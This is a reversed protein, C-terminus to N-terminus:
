WQDVWEDREGVIRVKRQQQPEPKLFYAMIKVNDGEVLFRVGQFEGHQVNNKRMEEILEDVIRNIPHESPPNASISFVGDENRRIINPPLDALFRNVPQKGLALGGVRDIGNNVRKQLRDIFGMGGGSKAQPYCESVSVVIPVAVHGEPVPGFLSKRKEPITTNGLNPEGSLVVPPKTAEKGYSVRQQNEPPPPPASLPKSNGPVGDIYSGEVEQYESHNLDITPRLEGLVRSALDSGLTNRLTQDVLEEVDGAGLNAYEPSQIRKDRLNSRPYIDLSTDDKEEYKQKPFLPGNGFPNRVSFKPIFRILGVPKFNPVSFYVKQRNHTNFQNMLAEFIENASSLSRKQIQFIRKFADLARPCGLLMSCNPCPFKNSVIRPELYAPNSPTYLNTGDSAPSLTVLCDANALVHGLIEPLQDKYFKINPTKDTNFDPSYVWR